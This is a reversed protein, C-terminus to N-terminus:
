QPASLTLAALVGGLFLGFLTATGMERRLVGLVFAIAMVLFVAAIAGAMDSGVGTGGNPLPPSAESVQAISWTHSSNVAPFANVSTDGTSTLVANTGFVIVVM